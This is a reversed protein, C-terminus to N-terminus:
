PGVLLVPSGALLGAIAIGGAIFALWFFGGACGGSANSAVIAPHKDIGAARDAKKLENFKQETGKGQVGILLWAVICIGILIAEMSGQEKQADLASDIRCGSKVRRCVGFQVGACAQACAQACVSVRRRVGLRM